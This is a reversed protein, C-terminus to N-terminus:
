ANSAVPDITYDGQMLLSSAHVGAVLVYLCRRCGSVLGLKGLTSRKDAERDPVCDCM